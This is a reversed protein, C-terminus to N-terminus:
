PGPRPGSAPRAGPGAGPGSASGASGPGQGAAPRSSPGRDAGQGAAPRASPRIRSVSRAAAGLQGLPVFLIGGFGRKAQAAATGTAPAPRRIWQKVQVTREPWIADFTGRHARVLERNARTDGFVLVRGVTLAEWGEDRALVRPLIRVKRSFVAGADQLDDIRTKIEAILLAQEVPHWGVVDASGREGFENFTVEVRTIWGAAQLTKVTYEVLAAHARDLLHDIRGSRWWADLAVRIDLVDAVKRIVGLRVHELRGLEILSVTGQSVYARKAVDAQRLKLHIRVERFARGVRRDDMRPM